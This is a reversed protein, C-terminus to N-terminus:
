AGALAVLTRGPLEVSGDPKTFPAVLTGIRERVAQRSAEDLAEMAERFPRSLDTTESIYSEISAHARDVSVKEITAEAFGADHLTSKLRGDASLAFMGPAEPDPPEAFGLGVLARGPITAWPNAEPVDWVALTLRGGPKLVRRTERMAAEPDVILMYGWRCIAADVTATPLDIWELQLQAFEVNDVGLAAARARAVELM